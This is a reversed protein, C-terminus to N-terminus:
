LGNEEKEMLLDLPSKQEYCCEYEYARSMHDFSFISRPNNRKWRDRIAQVKDPNRARWRREMANRKPRNLKQWNSRNRRVAEPNDKRWKKIYAARAEREFNYVKVSFVVQKSTAYRGITKM